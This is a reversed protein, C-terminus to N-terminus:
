KSFPQFHSELITETRADHEEGSYKKHQTMMQVKSVQFTHYMTMKPSRSLTSSSYLPALYSYINLNDLFVCKWVSFMKATTGIYLCSSGSYEREWFYQELPIDSEM